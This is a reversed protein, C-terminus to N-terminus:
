AARDLERLATRPAESVRANEIAPTAAAAITTLLRLRQSSWQSRDPFYLSLVGAAEGKDVLPLSVACGDERGIMRWPV